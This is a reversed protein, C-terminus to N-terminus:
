NEVDSELLDEFGPAESSATRSVSIIKLYSILPKFSLPIVQFGRQGSRCQDQSPFLQSKSSFMRRSQSVVHHTVSRTVRNLLLQQQCLRYLIM